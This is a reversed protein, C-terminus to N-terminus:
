PVPGRRGGVVLDAADGGILLAKGLHGAALAEDLVHQAALRARALAPNEAQRQREGRQQPEAQEPARQPPRRYALPLVFRYGPRLTACDPILARGPNRAAGRRQMRAVSLAQGPVIASSRFVM